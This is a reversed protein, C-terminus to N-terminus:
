FDVLIELFPSFIACTESVVNPCLIGQLKGSNLFLTIGLTFSFFHQFALFLDINVIM